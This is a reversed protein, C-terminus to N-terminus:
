PPVSPQVAVEDLHQGCEARRANLEEDDARV